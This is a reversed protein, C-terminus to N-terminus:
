DPRLQADAHGAHGADGDEGPLEQVDDADVAGNRGKHEERDACNSQQISATFSMRSDEMSVRMRSPSETTHMRASAAITSNLCPITMSVAWTWRSPTVNRPMLRATTAQMKLRTPKSLAVASPPSARFGKRVMGFATIQLRMRGPRNKTNM